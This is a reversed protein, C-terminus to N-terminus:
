PTGDSFKVGAKLRFTYVLQNASVSWSTALWPVVSGSSTESVLSDAVQREIYAEQVSGGELCQPELYHDYYITGGHVPTSSSPTNAAPGSACASALLALSSATALLAGTRASKSFTLDGLM